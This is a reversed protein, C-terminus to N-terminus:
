DFEPSQIEYANFFHLQGELLRWYNAATQMMSNPSNALNIIPALAVFLNLKDQLEGFNYSLATFM